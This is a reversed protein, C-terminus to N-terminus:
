VTQVLEMLPGAPPRLLVLRLTRGGVAVEFPPTRELAADCARGVADADDVLATTLLGIVVPGPDDLRAARASTFGVDVEVTLCLSPLPRRLRLLGEPTDSFGLARLVPVCAAPVVLRAVASAPEPALEVGPVPTAGAQPGVLVLRAAPVDLATPTRGPLLELAPGGGEHRLLTITQTPPADRKLFVRETDHVCVGADHFGRRWGRGAFFAEAIAPAPVRLAVHSLGAIM